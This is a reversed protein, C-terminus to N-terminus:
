YVGPEHENWSEGTFARETGKKRLVRFQEPTLQKKWEEESKLVRDKMNWVQIHRNTSATSDAAPNSAPAAGCGAVLSFIAPGLWVLEAELGKERRRREGPLAHKSVITREMM